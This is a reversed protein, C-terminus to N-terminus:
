QDTGFVMFEIVPDNGSPAYAKLTKDGKIPMFAWQNGGMKLIVVDSTDDDYVWIFESATAHTNKIYLYAPAAFDDATYLTVQGSATGKATSTVKKRSLGTTHEIGTSTGTQTLTATTSLSIEDTLLDTSNITITATTTAM